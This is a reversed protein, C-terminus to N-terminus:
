RWSYLRGEAQTVIVLSEIAFRAPTGEMTKPRKPRVKKTTKQPKPTLRREPMRVSATRESGIMMLVVSAARECTGWSQRSALRANPAELLSVVRLTTSGLASGPMRVPAMRPRARAAPSVAAIMYVPLTKKVGFSPTEGKSGTM